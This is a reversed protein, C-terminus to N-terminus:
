TLQNIVWSFPLNDDPFEKENTQSYLKNRLFTPLIRIVCKAQSDLM